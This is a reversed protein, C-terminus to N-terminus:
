IENLEEKKLLFEISVKTGKNIISEIFIDANHKKLINQVISLGLGTGKPKLTFFPDFIYKIKSKPIGSGTDLIDVCVYSKWDNKKFHSRIVIKGDASIAQIANNMLNIFVQTIQKTDMDFRPLDEELIKEVSINKKKFELKMLLLLSKIVSNINEKSLKPEAPKAFQLTDEIINEITNVSDLSDKFSKKM